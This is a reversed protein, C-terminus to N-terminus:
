SRGGSTAQKMAGIRASVAEGYIAMTANLMSELTFSHEAPVRPPTRYWALLREVVLGRDGLPVRGEPLIAMLQEGVGGHDYALVPRGLSLAELTVRGFAEPYRSLSLVVDSMAMIERLDSRHGLLTICEDLGQSAIRERLETEYHQKRPHTGGVLLGHVPIGKQRLAAVVEIFEEHGKLRSLRAPLTLLYKGQIQPYRACWTHLWEAPPSYGYPYDGRDVGRHIVTLRAADVWPYHELVYDRVTESIAIVREGRVMVSSYRGPRYFGHVTTVLAARDDRPMGRWAAYAIWAPLRSRLHLVDPRERRLFRRLKPIWRLTALRKAGVDWDLHESGEEILQALLRGGASVVISRHGDQVLRRAVELTGREVGGMDLAPLVQVVTLRRQEAM